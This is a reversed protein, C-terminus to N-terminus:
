FRVHLIRDCSHTHRHASLVVGVRAILRAVTRHNTGTLHVRLETRAALQPVPDVAVVDVAAVGSEGHSNYTV